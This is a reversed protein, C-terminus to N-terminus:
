DMDVPKASKKHMDAKKQYKNTKYFNWIGWLKISKPSERAKRNEERKMRTKTNHAKDGLGFMKNFMYKSLDPAIFIAPYAMSTVLSYPRDIMRVEDPTLLARNTLNVSISSSGASTRSYSSSKSNTAITYTGLKKSVEELTNLDESRLYIMNHCNGKITDSGERGYTEVIQSLSQVFINFRIGRGGGVTLMNPFNSMKSFNGFEDLLYNVKVDLRGGKIDANNVLQQYMQAIFLSALPYYTKKEDPLIIFLAQKKEGLEHPKFDSKCTMDCILHSTFLRLTSLASTYFSGKTRAPAINAIGMLTKAPHDDPLTELYRVIPPEKETMPCMQNIFMYVNTLNQFEPADMNEFVVALICSAIVSCEGDHWIREGNTEGVLISTLDWAYETAKAMDKKKVMDIIPQLFNYRHSKLPNKFDLTIVDYGLRELYPATYNFLEAKPDSIVFSQGSLGILGISQLVVSRSKGSRTAGICITHEDDYVYFIKEKGFRTNLGLVLGANDILEVKKLTKSEKDKLDDEGKELLQMIMFDNKDITISAFHKNLEQKSLWRASGNQNQGASVPTRIKDTINVLHSQYASGRQQFVLVLICLTSLGSFCLFLLRAQDFTAIIEICNKIRLEFGMLDKNVMSNHVVGALLLSALEGIPLLFALM